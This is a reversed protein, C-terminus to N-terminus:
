ESRGTVPGAHLALAIERLTATDEHMLDFLRRVFEADPESEVGALGNRIQKVVNRRMEAAQQVIAVVDSSRDDSESDPAPAVIASVQVRWADADSEEPSAHGATLDLVRIERDRVARLVAAISVLDSGNQLISPMELVEAPVRRLLPAWHM